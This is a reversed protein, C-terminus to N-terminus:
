QGPKGDKTKKQADPPQQAPSSATVEDVTFNFATKGDAGVLTPDPDCPPLKGAVPATHTHRYFKSQVQLDLTYKPKEAARPPPAAFGAAGKILDSVPFLSLVTELTKSEVQGSAKSLIGENTLDIEANSTGSRPINLNYYLTASADVYREPAVLNSSLIVEKSEKSGPDLIKTTDFLLPDTELLAKFEKLVPEYEQVQSVAKIKALTSKTNENELEQRGFFKTATIPTPLLAKDESSISLTIAYVPQLWVTTHLCRYGVVYFPVGPLDCSGNKSQECDELKSPPAPPRARTVQLLRGGCGTAQICMSAFLLCLMHAHRKM